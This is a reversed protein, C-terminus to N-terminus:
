RKPSERVWSYVRNRFYSRSLGAYAHRPDILATKRKAYHLAKLRAPTIMAFRFTQVVDRVRVSRFFRLPMKGLKDRCTAVGAERVCLTRAGDM